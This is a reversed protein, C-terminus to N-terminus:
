IDIQQQTKKKQWNWATKIAKTKCFLKLDPLMRSGAKNNKRLIAKSIRHRKQNWM